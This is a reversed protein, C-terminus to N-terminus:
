LNEEEEAQAPPTPGSGSLDPPQSQELNEQRENWLEDARRLMVRELAQYGFFAAAALGLAVATLLVSLITIQISIADYLHSTGGVPQVPSLRSILVVFLILNIAAMICGGIVVGAKM